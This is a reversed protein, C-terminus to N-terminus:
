LRGYDVTKMGNIVPGLAWPRLEEVEDVMVGRFLKPGTKYRFTYIGLGDSFEGVKEIDTKLHRESVKVAAAGKLLGGIGGLTDGLGGKSNSSGSSTYQSDSASAGLSASDSLGYSDSGSLGFSSSYKGADSIIGLPGLISTKFNENAAGTAGLLQKFYESFTQDALGTNYKDLAKLAAGSGLSGGVAANGIIGDMGQKKTFDYGTSNRWTDFAANQADGGNLGLLNYLAEIGRNGATSDTQGILESGIGALLDAFKNGSESGQVSGSQAGQESHSQSAQLSRSTSTGQSQQTSSSRNGM